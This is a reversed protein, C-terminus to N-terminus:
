PARSPFRSPSPYRRRAAARPPPAAVRRHSRRACPPPPRRGSWARVWSGPMTVAVKPAAPAMPYSSSGHDPKSRQAGRADGGACQDHRAPVLWAGGDATHGRTVSAAGLAERLPEADRHHMVAVGIHDRVCGDIGDIVRQGDAPVVFPRQLREGSALMHQAFFGQRAVCALRLRHRLRGLIGAQHQHLREVIAVVRHEDAGLFDHIRAHQPADLLHLGGEVRRHRIGLVDAVLVGRAAARGHVQAAIGDGPHAVDGALLRVLHLRASSPAGLTSTISAAFIRKGLPTRAM